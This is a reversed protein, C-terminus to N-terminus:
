PRTLLEVVEALLDRTQNFLRSFRGYLVAGESVGLADALVANTECSLFYQPESTFSLGAQRLIGGFPREAEIFAARLEPAFRELHIRLGALAVPRDANELGLVVVRDLAKDPTLIDDGLLRVTVDDGYHEALTATMSRDHVLLAAWPAPVARSEIRLFAPFSQGREAHLRLLARMSDLFEM